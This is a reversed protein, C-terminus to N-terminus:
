RGIPTAVPTGPATRDDRPAAWLASVDGDDSVQLLAFAPPREQGNGSTTVAIALGNDTWAIEDVSAVNPLAIRFGVRSTLDRVWVSDVRPGREGPVLVAYAVSRGDPSPHIETIRAVPAVTGASAVLQRDQGDADVRWLDIGSVAGELDGAETFLLSMGDPLWAFEVVFRGSDAAVV